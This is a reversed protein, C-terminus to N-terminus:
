PEKLYICKKGYESAVIQEIRCGRYMGYGPVFVVADAKSMQTLAKALAELPSKSTEDYTPLAAVTENLIAEAREIAYERLQIIEKHTLNRMPQSIYIKKM